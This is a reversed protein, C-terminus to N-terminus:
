KKAPYRKEVIERLQQITIEGDIFREFEIADDPHLELGALRQNAIAEDIVFRRDERSDVSFGSERSRKM